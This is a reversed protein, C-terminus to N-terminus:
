MWISEIENITIGVGVDIDTISHSARGTYSSMM